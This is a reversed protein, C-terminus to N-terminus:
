KVFLNFMRKRLEYKQVCQRFNVTVHNNDSLLELWAPFVSCQTIILSLVSRRYFLCIEGVKFICVMLTTSSGSVSLETVVIYVVHQQWIWFLTVYCTQSQVEWHMNDSFTIIHVSWSFVIWAKILELNSLQLASLMPMEWDDIWWRWSTCFGAACREVFVGLCSCM